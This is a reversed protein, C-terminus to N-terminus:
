KGLPIVARPVYPAEDEQSGLYLHIKTVSFTFDPKPPLEIGKAQAPDDIQALTLHPHLGEGYAGSYAPYDPFAAHLREYLDIIPQSDAPELFLVGEFSGYRNLHIEFSAAEKCVNELEAIAEDVEDQPVFPYILTIHAPLKEFAKQDYEERIPYCFAQVEPSPVILLATEFDM